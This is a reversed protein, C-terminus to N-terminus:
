ATKIVEEPFAPPIVLTRKRYYVGNTLHQEDTIVYPMWTTVNTEPFTQAPLSHSGTTPISPITLRDHLCEPFGGRRSILDYSVAAPIPVKNSGIAFPRPSTFEDEVFLSGENASPIYVERMVYRNANANTNTSGVQASLPFGEVLVPTLKVLIVHWYHNGFRKTTRFPTNAEAATKDKAFLVTAGDKTDEGQSTYVYDAFEKLYDRGLFTKWEASSYLTGEAPLVGGSSALSAEGITVSLSREAPNPSQITRHTQSM